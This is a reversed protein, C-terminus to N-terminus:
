ENGLVGKFGVLFGDECGLGFIERIRQQNGLGTVDVVKRSGVWLNLILRWPALLALVWLILPLVPGDSYGPGFSWEEPIERSKERM